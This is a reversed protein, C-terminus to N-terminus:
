NYSGYKRMADYTKKVDVEQGEKGPIIINNNITADISEIKYKNLNNKIEKM